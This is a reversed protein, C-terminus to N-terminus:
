RPATNARSPWSWRRAWRSCRARRRSSARGPRDAPAARRRQPDRLRRPPDGRRARRARHRDVPEDLGDRRVAIQGCQELVSLQLEPQINALFLVDCDRSPASLRPQFDEFVNLQTDLTERSNLDWGYEGAWFFTKGDPVREVDDISTGRTALVALDEDGFDAGVRGVVHVQDFFSAALAFHTAAGGLMREREGFPTKVADFAVSGVVTISM